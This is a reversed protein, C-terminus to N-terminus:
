QANPSARRTFRLEAHAHSSGGAGYFEDHSRVILTDGRREWSGEMLGRDGPLPFRMAARWEGTAPNHYSETVQCEGDGRGSAPDSITFLTDGHENITHSYDQVTIGDGPFLRMRLEIQCARGGRQTTVGMSCPQSDAVVTGNRALTVTGEWEGAMPEFTRLIAVTNTASVAVQTPSRWKWVAVSGSGLLLVLAVAVAGTKVNNWAMLVMAGQALGTVSPHMAGSQALASAMVTGTLGAPAASMGHASLATLLAAAPVVLGCQALAKRLKELARGVRMKAAAETTSLAAGVDAFSRQEFFRLVLADRDVKALRGLADDLEPAIQEWVSAGSALDSIHKMQEERKQRRSEQRLAEM